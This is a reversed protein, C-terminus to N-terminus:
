CGTAAPAKEDVQEQDQTVIIKVEPHALVEAIGDARRRFLDADVSGFTVITTTKGNSSIVGYRAGALM